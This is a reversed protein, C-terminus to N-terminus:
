SLEIIEDIDRDCRERVVTISPQIGPRSSGAIRLQNLQRALM